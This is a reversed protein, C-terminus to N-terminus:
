APCGSQLAAVLHSVGQGVPAHSYGPVRHDDPGSRRVQLPLCTFKLSSIFGCRLWFVPHSTHALVYNRGETQVKSLVFVFCLCM